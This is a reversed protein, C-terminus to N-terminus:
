DLVMDCGFADHGAARWTEVAEGQGCGFDLVTAHGSVPRGLESAVAGFFNVLRQQEDTSEVDRRASCEYSADIDPNLFTGPWRKGNVRGRL